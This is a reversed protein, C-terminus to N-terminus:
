RPFPGGIFIERSAGAPSSARASTAAPHPEPVSEPASALESEEAVPVTWSVLQPSVLCYGLGVVRSNTLSPLMMEIARAAPAASSMTATDLM